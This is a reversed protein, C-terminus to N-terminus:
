EADLFRMGTALRRGNSYDASSLLKGGAPLLELLTVAGGDGATVTIGDKLSVIVGAASAYTGAPAALRSRLPKVLEVGPKGGASGASRDFRCSAGPKPSLGRVLRDIEAAPRDWRIRGADPAFKGCATAASEDQPRATATGAAMEDLVRVMLAAGLEGLRDHLDGATDTPGLPVATQALIDGSDMRKAVRIISVGAEADGSLITTQFPSAGRHRPLLSPHLNIGGLRAAERVALKLYQGFAVVVMVDAGVARLAAVSEPTNVDEPQVVPLGAATAWIKVPGPQVKLGRGSPRDPQTVVLEIKHSSAAVARLTPLGIEGTGLYILRM